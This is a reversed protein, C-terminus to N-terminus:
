KTPKESLMLLFSGFYTAHSKPDGPALEAAAHSIAQFLFPKESLFRQQLVRLEDINRVDGELWGFLEQEEPAVSYQGPEHEVSM